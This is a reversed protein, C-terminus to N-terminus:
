NIFLTGKKRKREIMDVFEWAQLLWLWRHAYTTNRVTHELHEWVEYKKKKTKKRTKM